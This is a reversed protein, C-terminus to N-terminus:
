KTIALKILYGILTAGASIMVGYVYRRLWRMSEVLEDIKEILHDVREDMRSNRKEIADIRAAHNDLRKDQVNLRENVRERYIECQKDDM